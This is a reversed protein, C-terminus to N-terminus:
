MIHNVKIFSVVSTLSDTPLIQLGNSVSIKTLFNSFYIVFYIFICPWNKTVLSLIINVSNSDLHKETNNETAICM